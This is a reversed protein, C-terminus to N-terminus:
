EGPLDLLTAKGQRIPGPHGGLSAHPLLSREELGPPAMIRGSDADMKWLGKGAEVIPEIHTERLSEYSELYGGYLSVIVALEDDSLALTRAFSEYEQRSIPGPLFPDPGPLRGAADDRDDKAAATVTVARVGVGASDALVVSTVAGEDNGSNKNKVIARNLDKNKEPGLISALQDLARENLENRRGQLKETEQIRGTRGYPLYLPEPAQALHGFVYRDVLAM